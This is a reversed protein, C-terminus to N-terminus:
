NEYSTPGAQPGSLYRPTFRIEASSILTSGGAATVARVYLGRSFKANTYSGINQPASGAALVPYEEYLPASAADSALTVSGTDNETDPVIITGTGSIAGARTTYLNFSNANQVRVYGSTVGSIGTCTVYDGTVLEHSAATIYGTLDLPDATDTIAIALKRPVNFIQIFAASAGTNEWTLSELWLNHDVLMEKALALPGGEDAAPITVPIQGFM